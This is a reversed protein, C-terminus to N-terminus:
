DWEERKQVKGCDLCKRTWGKKKFDERTHFRPVETGLFPSEVMPWDKPYEELWLHYGFFCKIKNWLSM